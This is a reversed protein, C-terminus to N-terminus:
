QPRSITRVSGDPATFTRPKTLEKRLILFEEQTMKNGKTPRPIDIDKDLKKISRAAILVKDNIQVQLILGPLGWYERPGDNIAIDETFWAVIKAGNKKTSKALTCSYGSITDKIDTIEWEFIPLVDQILIDEGYEFNPMFNFYNMLLVQEKQNRYYNSTSVASSVQREVASKEKDDVEYNHESYGYFSEGNKYLLTMVPRDEKESSKLQERLDEINGDKFSFYENYNVVYSQSFLSCSVLLFSLIFLNKM